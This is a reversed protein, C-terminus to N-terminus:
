VLVTYKDKSTNLCSTIENLFKKFQMGKNAFVHSISVHSKCARLKVTNGSVYEYYKEIIKPVRASVNSDSGQAQLETFDLFFADMDAIKKTSNNDFHDVLTDKLMSGVDKLKPKQNQEHFLKYYLYYLSVTINVLSSVSVDLNQKNTKQEILQEIEYYINFSEILIQNATHGNPISKTNELKFVLDRWNNFASMSKEGPCKYYKLLGHNWTKDLVLEELMKISRINKIDRNSLKQKKREKDLSNSIEVLNGLAKKNKTQEQFLKIREENNAVIMVCPAFDFGLLTLVTSRGGGDACYLKGTEPDKAVTIAGLMKEDFDSIMQILSPVRASSLADRQSLGNNEEIWLDKLSVLNNGEDAWNKQTSAPNNKLGLKKKNAAKQLEALKERCPENDYMLHDDLNQQITYEMGTYGTHFDRVIRSNQSNGSLVQTHSTNTRNNVSNM